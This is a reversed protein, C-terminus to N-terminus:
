NRFPQLFHSALLYATLAMGIFIGKQGINMEFLIIIGSLGMKLGMKVLEWYFREKKYEEVMLGFKFINEKSDMNSKYKSLLMYIISPIIIAWLIIAPLIMSLLYVIHVSTYCEHSPSSHIFKLTTNTEELIISKCFSM